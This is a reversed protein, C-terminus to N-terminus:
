RASTDGCAAEMARAERAPSSTALLLDLEPARKPLRVPFDQQMAASRYSMTITINAGAPMRVGTDTPLAVTEEPPVWTGLYGGGKIAFEAQVIAPDNPQFSWGAIWRESAS